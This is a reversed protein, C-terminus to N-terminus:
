TFYVIGRDINEQGYFIGVYVRVDQEESLITTPSTLVPYHISRDQGGGNSHGKIAPAHGALRLEEQCRGENGILM